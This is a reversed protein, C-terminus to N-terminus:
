SASFAVDGVRNSVLEIRGALNEAVWDRALAVGKEASDRSEWLSISILEGDGVDAVEYRRFGPELRFTDLMGGKAADAIEHFTAGDKLRYTAVRIHEM